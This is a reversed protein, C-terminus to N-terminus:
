SKSNQNAMDQLHRDVAKKLLQAILGLFLRSAPNLAFLRFSREVRTRGNALPTFHWHEEFHDAMNKLPPSFNQMRMTLKSSGDWEVVEEVHTSGDTNRVAIRSGVLEATRQEFEAKAIGPLPGYGKFGPWNEVRMIEACIEAPTMPMERSCSFEIPAPLKM